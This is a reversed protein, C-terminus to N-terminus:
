LEKVRVIITWIGGIVLILMAVLVFTDLIGTRNIFTYGQTIEEAMNQPLSTPISFAPSAEAYIRPTPTPWPTLTGAQLPIYLISFPLFDLILQIIKRVIGFLSVMVPLLFTIVKLGIITILALPLFAVLPSLSGLNITSLGKIYSFATVAGTLEATGIAIPTGSANLILEPTVEWMAALTAMQDGIGSADVTNVGIPAFTNTPAPTPGPGPTNPAVATFPITPIPTPTRLTPLAPLKWPVPGCPLGRGCEQASVVVAGCFFCILLLAFRKM